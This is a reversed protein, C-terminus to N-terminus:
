ACPARGGEGAGSVVAAATRWGRAQLLRRAVDTHLPSFRSLHVRAHEGRGQRSHASQEASLCGCCGVRASPRARLLSHPASSLSSESILNSESSVVRFPYCRAPCFGHQGRGGVLPQRAGRARDRPGGMGTQRFGGGRARDARRILDGLLSSESM